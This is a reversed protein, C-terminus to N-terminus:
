MWTWFTGLSVGVQRGFLENTFLMGQITVIGYWLHYIDSLLKSAMHNTLLPCNLNDLADTAFLAIARNFTKIHWSKFALLLCMPITKRVKSPSARNMQIIPAILLAVVGFCM